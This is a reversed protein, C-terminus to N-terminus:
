LRRIQATRQFATSSVSLNRKNNWEFAHHQNLIEKELKSLNSSNMSTPFDNSKELQPQNSQSLITSDMSSPSHRKVKARRNQFWIQVTTSRLETSVALRECLAHGPNTVHKYVAELIACKSPTLSSRFRKDPKIERTTKARRNKLWIKVKASPINFVETLRDIEAPNLYTKINSCGELVGIQQESFLFISQPEM